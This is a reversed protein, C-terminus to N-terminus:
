LGEDILRVHEEVVRRPALAMFLRLAVVMVLADDLQGLGILPFDPILDTPVIVYILGAVLILKPLLSVRRDKFLRWYLKIFNPLHLLLKMRGAPTTFLSVKDAKLAM